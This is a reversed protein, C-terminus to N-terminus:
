LPSGGGGPWRGYVQAPSKSPQSAMHRYLTMNSMGFENMERFHFLAKIRVKTLNVGLFTLGIGLWTPLLMSPTTGLLSHIWDLAIHLHGLEHHSPTPCLPSLYGFTTGGGGGGRRHVVRADGCTIDAWCRTGQFPSASMPLRSYHMCGLPSYTRNIEIIEM